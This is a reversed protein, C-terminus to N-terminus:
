VFHGDMEAVGRAAETAVPRKVSVVGRISDIKSDIERMLDVKTKMIELNDSIYEYYELQEEESESQRFEETLLDTSEKLKDVTLQVEARRVELELLGEPLCNSEEGFSSKLYVEVVM